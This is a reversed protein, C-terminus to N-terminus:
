WRHSLSWVLHGFVDVHTQRRGDPTQSVTLKQVFLLLKSKTKDEKKNNNQDLILMQKTNQSLTNENTNKKYIKKDNLEERKSCCWRMRLPLTAEFGRGHLISAPKHNSKCEASQRWPWWTENMFHQWCMIYIINYIYIYFIVPEYRCPQIEFLSNFFYGYQLNM